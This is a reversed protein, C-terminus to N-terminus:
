DGTVQPRWVADRLCNHVAKRPTAPLICSGDNSGLFCSLDAADWALRPCFGALLWLGFFFEFEVVGILFWRSSLLSMGPVPKTALQHGKLAAATLLILGLAIRVVDYPRVRDSPSLGM